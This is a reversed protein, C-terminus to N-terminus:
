VGAAADAPSVNFGAEWVAIRGERLVWFEVGFRKMAAGSQADEWEGEWVNTLVDGAFARLRKRLRLEKAQRQAGRVVRLAKRGRLAVDWSVFYRSILFSCRGSGLPIRERM